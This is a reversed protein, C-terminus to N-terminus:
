AVGISTQCLFSPLAGSWASLSRKQDTFVPKFYEPITILKKEEAEMAQYNPVGGAGPYLLFCTVMDFILDDSIIPQFGLALPKSGPVPKMKEKARFCFILNIKQQTYFGRFTQLAAKPKAWAPFNHKDPSGGYAKSMRETEQEHWDLLGGPGEHLLSMSDVILHKIGGKVAKDIVQTFKEPTFPAGFEKYKYKFHRRKEAPLHLDSFFDAGQYHNGRGAETDAMGIDGGQAEQFGHALEISSGTKGSKAPGAIGVILPTNSRPVFAFDDSM